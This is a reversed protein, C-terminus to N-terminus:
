INVVASYSDGNKRGRITTKWQESGLRLAFAM